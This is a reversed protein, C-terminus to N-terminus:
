KKQNEMLKAKPYIPYMEATDIFNIGNDYAYDMIKFSELETNQEGYTMSGLGICSINIETNGLKNYKM